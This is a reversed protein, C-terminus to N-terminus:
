EIMLRSKNFICYKIKQLICNASLNCKLGVTSILIHLKYVYLKTFPILKIWLFVTLGIGSSVTKTM